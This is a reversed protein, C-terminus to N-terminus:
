RLSTYIGQKNLLIVIGPEQWIALALYKREASAIQDSATLQFNRPNESVIINYCDRAFKYPSDMSLALSQDSRSGRFDAMIALSSVILDRYNRQWVERQSCLRASISLGFVEM